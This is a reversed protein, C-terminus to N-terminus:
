EKARLTGHLGDNEGRAKWVIGDLGAAVEEQGGCVLGSFEWRTGVDELM